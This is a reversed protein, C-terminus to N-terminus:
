VNVFRFSQAPTGALREFALHALAIDHSGLGIPVVFINESESERGPRIGAVTEGVEAFIDRRTLRGDEAFRKLEGRHACQDWSDVVIKDANLIAADDFEQYSGMSIATSGPRLWEAQVLPGDAYTVTIVVDAGRVAEEVTPSAIANLGYRGKADKCYAASTVPNLDYVRVERITLLRVLADLAFRAQTGGGVFAVVEAQPHYHRVCVAAAAGTRMNTIHSGDMVALPYGTAPDQLIILAMVYPLGRSQNLAYGGAWKIGAARVPEIYAPMANHWAELGFKGLDLTIKAPMSVRGEGHARFVSEVTALADDMQIMGAIDDVSFLRTPEFEEKM